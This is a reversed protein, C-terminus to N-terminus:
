NFSVSDPTQARRTAKVSDIHSQIFQEEQDLRRLLENVRKVQENTQRQYYEHSKLFQEESVGFRNFVITKLSDDNVSDPYADRYTKIHQVELMLDIYNNEDILNDPKPKERPEVCGTQIVMLGLFALLLFLVKEM